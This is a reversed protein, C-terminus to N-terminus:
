EPFMVKFMTYLKDDRFMFVVQRDVNVGGTQFPLQAGYWKGAWTMDNYMPGFSGICWDAMEKIESIRKNEFIHPIWGDRKLQMAVRMDEREQTYAM